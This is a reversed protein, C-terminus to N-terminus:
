PRSCIQLLRKLGFRQSSLLNGQGFNQALRFIGPVIPVKIDRVTYGRGRECLFAAVGGMSDLGYVSGGSLVLADVQEITMGPKLLATDHLGPAGGRVAISAIAPSEFILASVGSGLSEDQTHDVRLGPVGTILNRL